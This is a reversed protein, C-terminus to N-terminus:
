TRQKRSELASDAAPRPRVSGALSARRVLERAILRAGESVAKEIQSLNAQVRESPGAINVAGLPRGAADLIPAAVGGAGEVRGKLNVAIGRRRAVAVAKHLQEWEEPPLTRARRAAVAYNELRADDCASLIAIGSAVHHAIRDRAINRDYRIEREPLHKCVYRIRREPSMVAIFGSEQTVAVADRVIDDAIRVLTGWGAGEPSAEGPLRALRYRGDDGREAYGTEVLTRLLVLTSSKPMDLAARAEALTAPEARAALWEILELIRASSSEAMDNLGSFANLIIFLDFARFECRDLALRRWDVSRPETVARWRQAIHVAKRRWPKGNASGKSQLVVCGAGV